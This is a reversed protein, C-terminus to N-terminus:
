SLTEDRQSLLDRKQQTWDRQRRKYDRWNPIKEEIVAFNKIWDKDDLWQSIPEMLQLNVKQSLSIAQDRILKGAIRMDLHAIQEQTLDTLPPDQASPIMKNPKFETKLKLQVYDFCKQVCDKDTNM